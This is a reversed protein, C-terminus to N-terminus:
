PNSSALWAARQRGVQCIYEVPTEDDGHVVQSWGPCQACLIGVTCTKCATDLQRQALRLAGMEEWAKGLSEQRLDYSPHRVMMCASLRGAADVHFGHKAAGCNFVPGSRIVRDDFRGLLELWEQRRAPDDRDITVIEEPSLRYAWPDQGGDLRPWLMPDARFPVGLGEAFAAMQPLEDSTLTLAMAKLGLPLRRDVVLEIGNMCRTFSGPVQTVREYTEPTAGYLTIEILRPPYEALLDALRPTLLTGNTFVTVLMGARVAHRYIEAFDPRLLV